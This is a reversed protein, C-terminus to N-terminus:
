KNTFYEYYKVHSVNKISFDIQNYKFVIKFNLLILISCLHMSNMRNVKHVLIVEGRNHEM